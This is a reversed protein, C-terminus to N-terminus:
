NDGIQIIRTSVYEAENGKGAREKLVDPFFFLRLVVFIIFLKILVVLWLVRGTDMGRFGERYFEYIRRIINVSRM